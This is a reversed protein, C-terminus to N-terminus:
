GAAAGDLDVPIARRPKADKRHSTIDAGNSRFADLSLDYRSKIKKKHAICAFSAKLAM